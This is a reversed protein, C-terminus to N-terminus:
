LFIRKRVELSSCVPDACGKAHVEVMARKQRRIASAPQPARKLKKFRVMIDSLRRTSAPFLKQAARLYIYISWSKPDNPLDAIAGAFLAFLDGVPVLSQRLWQLESARFHITLDESRNQM